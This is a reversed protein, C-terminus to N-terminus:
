RAPLCTERPSSAFSDSINPGQYITAAVFVGYCPPDQTDGNYAGFGAHSGDNHQVYFSAAGYSSTHAARTRNGCSPWGGLSAGWPLSVSVSPNFGCSYGTWYQGMSIRTLASPGICSGGGYTHVDAELTPDILRQNRWFAVGRGATATTYTIKGRLTFYVCVQLPRSKFVWSKSFSVTKAASAPAGEAAFLVPFVSLLLIVTFRRLHRSGRRTRAGATGEPLPQGAGM